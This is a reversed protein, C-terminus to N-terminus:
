HFGLGIPDQHQLVDMHFQWDVVSDNNLGFPIDPFIPMSNANSDVSGHGSWTDVSSRASSLHSVDASGHLALNTFEVSSSAAPQVLTGVGSATVRGFNNRLKKFTPPPTVPKSPFLHQGAPGFDRSIPSSMSVVPEPVSFPPPAPTHAPAPDPLASGCVRKISATLYGELLTRLLHFNGFSAAGSLTLERAILGSFYTWHLMFTSCVAEIPRKQREAHKVVAALVGDVFKAITELPARESLLSRFRELETQVFFTPCLMVGRAEEVLSVSDISCWDAFMQGYATGDGLAARVSQAVQHLSARQALHRAFMRSMEIRKAFLGDPVGILTSRVLNEYGLAFQRVTAPLSPPAEALVDPVLAAMFARHAAVDHQLICNVLEPHALLRRCPPPVSRWFDGTLKRAKDFRRFVLADLIRISCQSYAGMFMEAIPVHEGFAARQADTLQFPQLSVSPRKPSDLMDRSRKHALAALTPSQTVDLPPVWTAGPHVGNVVGDSAGSDNSETSSSRSPVM